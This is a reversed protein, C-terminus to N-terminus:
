FMGLFLSQFLVTTPGVTSSHIFEANIPTATTVRPPIILKHDYRVECRNTQKQKPPAAPKRGTFALALKDELQPQQHSSIAQWRLADQHSTELNVSSSESLCFATKVTWLFKVTLDVRQYTM